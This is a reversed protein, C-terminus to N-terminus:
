YLATSSAQLKPAPLRPLLYPSAGPKAYDPQTTFALKYGAKEVETQSEETFQGDPYAFYSCPCELRAELERKSEVLEFERISEPQANHQIEHQVGHSGVTVGSDSLQRVDDWSMMKFCEFKDTLRQTEGAPFQQELESMALRRIPASLSKLVVRITRFANERRIRSILSWKRNLLEIEDAEGHLLLLSLEVTWISRPKGIVGTSVFVCWPIGRKHMLESLIVNNAYGDDVTVIVSPKESNSDARIGASIDNIDIIRFRKLYDLQDEFESRLQFNRQLFPDTKAEVIGHYYLVSLGGLEVRKPFSLLGSLSTKTASFLKM